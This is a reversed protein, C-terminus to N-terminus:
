RSHEGFECGGTAVEHTQAKASPGAGSGKDVVTRITDALLDPDLPKILIGDFGANVLRPDEAADIHATVALVRPVARGLPLRRIAALAAIGDMEPMEIDMLVLDIGGAAVRAVAIAGDAAETVIHGAAQAYLRLLLRNAAVDDAVLVSVATRGIEAM